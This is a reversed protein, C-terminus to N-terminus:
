GDQDDDSEKIERMWSKEPSERWARRGRPLDAVNGISRDRDYACGLCVVIGDKPDNTTGCLIQWDGDYDHSVLLIPHNESFVQKTSIAVVNMPDSFPWEAAPFSHAHDELKEMALALATAGGLPLSPVSFACRNRRDCGASQQAVGV